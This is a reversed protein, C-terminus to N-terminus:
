LYAWPLFLNCGFFFFQAKPDAWRYKPKGPPEATFFGDALVPSALSMPIIGPDPLDGPPPFPMGSWYEQRSFGLSLPAQRDLTRPTEFLQVHSLMQVYNNNALMQQRLKAGKNM